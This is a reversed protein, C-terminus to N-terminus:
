GNVDHHVPKVEYNEMHVGLPIREHPWVKVNVLKSFAGIHANDGIYSNILTVGKEIHVHRGIISNMIKVDDEIFSRDMIASGLIHCGSKIISYNDIVSDEIYVNDGIDTHRGILSVGSFKVLGRRYREVIDKHLVKSAQSKGQMYVGPLKEEAELIRHDSHYLLFKMAELYREPTGIDFWYGNKMVYGYVRYGLEILKPIIDKGFDMRGTKLMDMGHISNFFDIVTPQILYIGTNVLKSPAEQPKPKEVFKIVRNDNDLVAVGFESVDEVEKFVITMDAEVSKHFRYVDGINLKFLNDCQVVIFSERLDYYDVLIRVADANGLTEYRPMYRIRVDHDIFPYRTRIWYGEKFYDYVSRYNYYGRVGLYIEEIGNMALELIILELIPKNLIRILAKSTGISLPRLRVAEGGIPIVAIRLGDNALFPDGSIILFLLKNFREM